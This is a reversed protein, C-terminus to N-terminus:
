EAGRTPPARRKALADLALKALEYPWDTTSYRGATKARPDSGHGATRGKDKRPLTLDGWALAELVHLM